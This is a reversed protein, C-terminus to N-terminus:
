ERLDPLGLKRPSLLFRALPHVKKQKQQTVMMVGPNIEPTGVEFRIPEGRWWSPMHM